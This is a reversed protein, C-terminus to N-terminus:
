IRIFMMFLYFNLNISKSITEEMTSSQQFSIVIVKCIVSIQVHVICSVGLVQGILRSFIHIFIFLNKLSAFYKVPDLDVRGLKYLGKVTVYTRPGVIWVGRFCIM